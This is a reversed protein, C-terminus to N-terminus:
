RTSPGRAEGRWMSGLVITKRAAPGSESRPYTSPSTKFHRRSSICGCRVRLQRLDAGRLLRASVSGDLILLDFEGSAAM